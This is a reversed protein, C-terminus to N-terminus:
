VRLPAAQVPVNEPAISSGPTVVPIAELYLRRRTVERSQRYAAVLETFRAVNGKARNVRDIAYGDAEALVRKAEGKAVEIVMLYERQAENEIRRAEQQAANVENFSPQVPPPPVSNQLKITVIEVGFAYRDLLKQLSAKAGLAIAEREGTFVETATRDGVVARM